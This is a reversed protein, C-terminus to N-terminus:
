NELIDHGTHNKKVAGIDTLNNEIDSKSNEVKNEFGISVIQKETDLVNDKSNYEKENVGIKEDKVFNYTGDEREGTNIADKLLKEKASNSVFSDYGFGIMDKRNKNSINLGFRGIRDNAYVNTSEDFIPFYTDVSFQFELKREIEDGFNYENTNMISIGSDMIVQGYIPIGKYIFNIPHLRFMREILIEWATYLEYLTSCTLNSEFGVKLQLLKANCYVTAPAGNKDFITREVKVFNNSIEGSEIDVSTLTCIGRPRPQNMFEFYRGYNNKILEENIQDSQFFDQLFREQNSGGIMFPIEVKRDDNYTIYIKSLFDVVALQLDRLYIKNM